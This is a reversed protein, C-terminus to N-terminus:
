LFSTLTLPAGGDRHGASNRGALSAKSVKIGGWAEFFM